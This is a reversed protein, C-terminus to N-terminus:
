QMSKRLWATIVIIPSLSRQLHITQTIMLPYMKSTNKTYCPLWYSIRIMTLIKEILFYILESRYEELLDEGAKDSCMSSHLSVDITPEVTNVKCVQLYKVIHILTLAYQTYIFQRQSVTYLSSAINIDKDADVSYLHDIFYKLLMYYDSWSASSMFMLFDEINCYRLLSDNTKNYWLSDHCNVEYTGWQASNCAGSLVTDKSTLLNTPIPFKYNLTLYRVVLSSDVSILWPLHKIFLASIDIPQYEVSTCTLIGLSKVCVSNIWKQSNHANADEQVTFVTSNSYCQDLTYTHVGYKHLLYHLCYLATSALMYDRCTHLATNIYNHKILIYVYAEILVYRQLQKEKSQCHDIESRIEDLCEMLHLTCIANAMVSTSTNYFLEFTNLISYSIMPPQVPVKFKLILQYLLCDVIRYIMFLDKSMDCSGLVDTIPHVKEKQTCQLYLAFLSPQKIHRFYSTIQLLYNFLAIHAPNYFIEQTLETDKHFLSLTVSHRSQKTHASIESNLSSIARLKRNSLSPYNPPTSDEFHRSEIIYSSQSLSHLVDKDIQGDLHCFLRNNIFEYSPVRTYNELEVKRNLVRLETFFLAIVSVPNAKSVTFLHFADNIKGEKLCFLGLIFYFENTILDHPYTCNMTVLSQINLEPVHLITTHINFISYLADKSNAYATTIPVRFNTPVLRYIHSFYFFLSGKLKTEFSVGPRAMMHNITTLFPYLTLVCLQNKTLLFIDSAESYISLVENARVPLTLDDVEFNTGIWNSWNTYPIYDQQEMNYYAYTIHNPHCYCLGKSDILFVCEPTTCIDFISESYEVFQTSSSQNILIPSLIEASLTTSPIASIEPINSLPIRLKFIDSIITYPLLYGDFSMLVGDPIYHRSANFCLESRVVRNAYLTHYTKLTSGISLQHKKYRAIPIKRIFVLPNLAYIYYCTDSALILEHRLELCSTDNTVHLGSFNDTSLASYQDLVNTIASINQIAVITHIGEDQLKMKNIKPGLKKKFRNTYLQNCTYDEYTNYVGFAKLRSPSFEYFYLSAKRVLILLHVCQHPAKAEVDDCPVANPRFLSPNVSEISNISSSTHSHASSNLLDWENKIFTSTNHELHVPKAHEQKINSGSTNVKLQYKKNLILTTTTFCTINQFESKKTLTQTVPLVSLNNSRLAYLLKGTLSFIINDTVEKASKFVSSPVITISPLGTYNPCHSYSFFNDIQLSKVPANLQLYDSSNAIPLCKVIPSSTRIESKLLHKYMSDINECHGWTNEEGISSTATYIDSHFPYSLVSVKYRVINGMENGIYVKYHSKVQDKETTPLEERTVMTTVRDLNLDVLASSLM